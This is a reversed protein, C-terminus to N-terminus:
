FSLRRFLVSPINRVVWMIPRWVKPVYVTSRSTRIAVAIQRAADDSEIVLPLHDSAATMPTRVPGPKITVVRVGHRTLRNRLSEAFTTLAAKSTAYAPHSRRGRDGAVSSVAAITGTGTRRFRNAAANMWAMAGLLNARIIEHDKQFDFEDEDVHPMTGANYILVDIGDLELAIREFLEPVAGFDTVDHEYAWAVPALRGANLEAALQELLPRRRALLAVRYEEEVLRRALAEGIGSSAGVIVATAPARRLIKDAM